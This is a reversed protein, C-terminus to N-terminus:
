GKVPQTDNRYKLYENIKIRAEKSSGKKLKFKAKTIVDLEKSQVVEIPFTLKIEKM